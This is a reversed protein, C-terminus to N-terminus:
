PGNSTQQPRDPFSPDNQAQQREIQAKHAAMMQDTQARAQAALLKPDPPPTPPALPPNM